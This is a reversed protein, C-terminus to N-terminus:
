GETAPPQTKKKEEKLLHQLRDICAKEEGLMETKWEQMALELFVTKEYKALFDPLDARDGMAFM